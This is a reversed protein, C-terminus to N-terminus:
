APARFLTMACERAAYALQIANPTMHCLDLDGAHMMGKGVVPDADCSITHRVRISNGGLNLLISARTFEACDHFM